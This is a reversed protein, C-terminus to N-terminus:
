IEQRSEDLIEDVTSFLEDFDVPKSLYDRCGAELASERDAPQAHATLAVVPINSIEEDNNIRSTVEWGDMRPLSLDMLVLDPRDERVRELAEKGDGAEIVEFGNTSLKRKVMRRNPKNDEVLLLTSMAIM